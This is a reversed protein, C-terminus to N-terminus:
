KSKQSPYKGTIKKTAWAVYASPDTVTGWSKVKELKDEFTKDGKFIKKLTKKTPGKKKKAESLEDGTHEKNETATCSCTGYTCGGTCSAEDMDQIQDKCMCMNQPMGCGRCMKAEHDMECSCSDEITTHMMGCSPCIEADSCDCKGDIMMMGCTPCIDEEFENDLSIKVNVPETVAVKLPEGFAEELIQEYKDM